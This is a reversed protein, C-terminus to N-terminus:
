NLPCLPALSNKWDVAKSFDLLGSGFSLSSAAVHGLDPRRAFCETSLSALYLGKSLLWSSCICWSAVPPSTTRDETTRPGKGHEATQTQSDPGSPAALSFLAM